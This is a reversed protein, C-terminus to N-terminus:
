ALGHTHAYAAAATRSAVGLKALVAQVHHEVTRESISLAVAITRNSRGAALLRLVEWERPTLGLQGATPVEATASEPAPVPGVALAEAVIEEASLSGGAAWAATFAEDGLEARAIAFGRGRGCHDDEDYGELPDQAAGIAIQRRLGQAAGFLRAAREGQGCGAELVAWLELVVAMSLRDGQAHSLTLGEAYMAAARGADDQGAANMGLGIAAQAAGWRFGTARSLARAETVHAEAAALDGRAHAVGALGQLAVAPWAREDVERWLALAEAFHAGVAGWDDGLAGSWCREVLALAVAHRDGSARGLALSEALHADAQAEDGQIWAFDGAMALVRARLGPHDVGAAAARELWVRGEGLHGHVRWFWWLAGVLRLLAETEGREVVWALAARLNAHETELRDLWAAEDPTFYARAAAEALGLFHAAHAGRIAGEEESAALRQLGYERITELMGYRPTDPEPGSGAWSQQQLLSQDALAGLVDLVSDVPSPRRDIAARDGSGQPDRVAEAADLTFGGAFVALRRFLVQEAPALLDHSWAIADGM